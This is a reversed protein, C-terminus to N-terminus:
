YLVNTGSRANSRHNATPRYVIPTSPSIPMLARPGCARQANTLPLDSTSARPAQPRHWHPPPCHDHNGKPAHTGVSDGLPGRFTGRLPRSARPGLRSTPVNGPRGRSISPLPGGGLFSACLVFARPRLRSPRAAGDRAPIFPVRGNSRWIASSKTQVCRALIRASWSRPTARRRTTVPSRPPNGRM